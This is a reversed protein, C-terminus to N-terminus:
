ARAFTMVAIMLGTSTAFAGFGTGLASLRSAGLRDSIYASIIGSLIGMLLAIIVMLVTIVDQTNV